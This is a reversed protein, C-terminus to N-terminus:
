AIFDADNVLTTNVNPGSKWFSNMLSVAMIVGFVGFVIHYSYKDLLNEKKKSRNMQAAKAREKMGPDPDVSPAGEKPSKSRAM